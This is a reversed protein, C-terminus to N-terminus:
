GNTQRELLDMGVSRRPATAPMSGDAMVYDPSLQGISPCGIQALTRDVEDKLLRLVHDVGAEGAAALGYLTARGLVVANAGLALAKVIDTGRRYGSDILIPASIRARSEALVDLPSVAADLQRAGHNSLIVGDAGASICREADDPRMIGKVLLKRPWLKRLWSFDDWNFSSDMQRSMVTAQIEGDSSDATVFNGLQPMGSLMFGFSWRPHTVGDYILGPTYRMRLGFNNRLDRERNGNVGVDTTLVLTSYGAAEARRVMQEALKRQVIYLQFWLDAKSAAAVEEISANSATSLVFPIGARGAARALLLDGKPWLAGNLGTPGIMFPASQHRGFLEIGSDRRSVDVLRRPMLRYREFVERNHKMGIEDEAGGELYDFIIKPLRSQALIRYDEVNVPKMSM